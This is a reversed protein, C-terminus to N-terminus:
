FTSQKPESGGLAHAQTLFYYAYRVPHALFSSWKYFKIVGTHSLTPLRKM